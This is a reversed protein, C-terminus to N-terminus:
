RPQAAAGQSVKQDQFDGESIANMTIARMEATRPKPKAKMNTKMVAIAASLLYCVSGPFGYGSTLLKPTSHGEAMTGPKHWFESTVVKCAFTHSRWAVRCGTANAWTRSSGAVSRAKSSLSPVCSRTTIIADPPQVAAESTALPLTALRWSISRLGAPIPRM